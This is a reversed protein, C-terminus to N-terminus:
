GTRRRRHWDLARHRSRHADRHVRHRHLPRGADSHFVLGKSSFGADTRRRTFVAQDLASMVLPTAKSTSVRWGLIRRSFVDTVFSTYCFGALTWV